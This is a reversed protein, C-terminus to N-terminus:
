SERLLAGQLAGEKKFFLMIVSIFTRTFAMWCALLNKDGTGLSSFDKAGYVSLLFNDCVDATLHQLNHTEM